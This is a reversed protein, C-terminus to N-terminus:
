DENRGWLSPNANGCGQVSLGRAPESLITATLQNCAVFLGLDAFEVNQSTDRLTCSEINSPEVALPMTEPINLSATDAAYQFSDFAHAWRVNSGVECWRFARYPFVHGVPSHRLKSQKSSQKSQNFWVWKTAQRVTFTHFGYGKTAEYLQIASKGIAMVSWFSYLLSGVNGLTVTSLVMVLSSVASLFTHVIGVMDRGKGAGRYHLLDYRCFTNFFGHARSPAM